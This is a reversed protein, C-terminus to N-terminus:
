EGEKEKFSGTEKYTDTEIPNGDSGKPYRPNWWENQYTPYDKNYTKFGDKHDQGLGFPFIEKFETENSSTVSTTANVGSNLNAVASVIWSTTVDDFGVANLAAEYGKEGATFKLTGGYSNLGSEHSVSITATPFYYAANNHAASRSETDPFQITFGSSMTQNRKGPVDHFDHKYSGDPTGYIMTKSDSKHKIRFNGVRRTEKDGIGGSNIGSQNIADALILTICKSFEEASIKRYAYVSDDLGRYSYITKEGDKRQAKRQARIMYYHKADRQVKLLGNNCGTSDDVGTATLQLSQVGPTITTEDWDRSTKTVNGAKDMSGVQFWGAANNLNKEWITYAPKGDIDEPGLARINSDWSSWSVTETFSENGGADLGNADFSEIYFSYGKNKQETPSLDDKATTLEEMFSDVFPKDQTFPVGTKVYKVSYEYANANKLDRTTETLSSTAGSIQNRDTSTYATARDAVRFYLFQPAPQNPNDGVYPKDWTIKVKDSYESKSARINLGYGITAGKKALSAANNYTLKHSSDKISSATLLGNSFKDSKSLVPVVTYEIPIGWPIMSQTKQMQSATSKDGEIEKYSDRLTLTGESISVGMESSPIAEGSSTEVNLTSANIYFLEPTDEDKTNYDTGSDKSIVKYRLRQLVYGKAGDIAKWSVDIYNEASATNAVLNLGAPGLTRANGSGTSSDDDSSAKVTVEMESGSKTADAYYTEGIEDPGFTYSYIKEGSVVSETVNSGDTGPLVIETDLTQGGLKISYNKAGSVKQWSVTISDYALTSSNFEVQPTGLSELTEYTQSIPASTAGNQIATLTYTRQVGFDKRDDLNNTDDLTITGNAHSPVEVTYTEPEMNGKYKQTYSLTYTYSTDYTWSITFKDKFGGKIELGDITGPNDTVILPNQLAVTELGSESPSESDSIYITFIYSGRDGSGGGALNFTHTYENVEAVSNFTKVFDTSSSSGDVDFKTVTKYLHYHYNKALNENEADSEFLFNDWKFIFDASASSYSEASDNEKLAAYDKISLIPAAMAWGEDTAYSYVDSTEIYKYNSVDDDDYSEMIGSLKSTDIFSQVKYEYKIGRDPGSISDTWTIETGEAYNEMALKENKVIWAGDSGAVRRFIKFYLPINKYTIENGSTHSVDAAEPTTFKLTVGDNAQGKEASLDLPAAPRLRHLTEETLELSEETDGYIENRVIVQYTYRTHPSLNEIQYHNESLDSANLYISNSKGSPDTYKIEYTVCSRYTDNNCNAMYWHLDVNIEDSKENSLIATIEPAALSSGQVAFSLRGITYSSDVAAIKYWATSGPNVKITTSTEETQTIQKFDSEKPTPETTGYIYYRTAGNVAQWNLEICGSKGHTATLGEPAGARSSDSVSISTPASLFNEKCSSCLFTVAALATTLLVIRFKKM